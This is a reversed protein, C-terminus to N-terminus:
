KATLARRIMAAVDRNANVWIMHTEPHENRFVRFVEDAFAPGIIGVGEFDLLIENSTIVSALVRKAEARSVPDKGAQDFIRVPVEARTLRNATM